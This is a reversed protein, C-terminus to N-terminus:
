AGHELPKTSIGLMRYLPCWGLVATVLLVVGAAALLMGATGGFFWGTVLLPIGALTRVVRDWSAENVFTM